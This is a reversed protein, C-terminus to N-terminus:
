CTHSTDTTSTTTTLDSAEHKKIFNFKNIFKSKFINKSSLENKNFYFSTATSGTIGKDDNALQASTTTTTIIGDDGVVIVENFQLSFENNSITTDTTSNSNTKKLFRHTESIGSKM